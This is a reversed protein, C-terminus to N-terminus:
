KRDPTAEGPGPPDLADAVTLLTELLDYTDIRSSRKGQDLASELKLAVSRLADAIQHEPRTM